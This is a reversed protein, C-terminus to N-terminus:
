RCNLAYNDFLIRVDVANYQPYNYIFQNRFICMNETETNFTNYLEQINSGGVFDWNNELMYSNSKDILDYYVGSPIWGSTEAYWDERELSNLLDTYGLMFSNKHGNPYRRLANETGIFEAWSEGVQVIGWNNYGPNGYVHTLEAIDLNLHWRPGVQRYMSAHGLEHFAIQALECNYNDPQSGGCVKFTMDPLLGHMLNLLTGSVPNGFIQQIILDTYIGGTLHYLM